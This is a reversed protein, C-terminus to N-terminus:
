GGESYYAIRLEGGDNFFACQLIRIIYRYDSLGLSHEYCVAGLYIRWCNKQPIIAHYLLRLYAGTYVSLEYHTDYITVSVSDGVLKCSRGHGEVTIGHVIM